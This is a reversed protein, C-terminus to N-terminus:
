CKSIKNYLNVYNNIMNDMSYESKIKEYLPCYLELLFSYNKTAYLIKGELEKLNGSEYILESYEASFIDKYGTYDSSIVLCDNFVAEIIVLPLGEEKSRSTFVFIGAKSLMEKYDSVPDLFKVKSGLEKNLKLLSNIERGDGSVYFDYLNSINQKISNAAVIYLDLGKDKEYRSAALVSINDSLPKNTKKTISELGHKVIFINAAPINQGILINKVRESLVFYYQSKFHNLRGTRSLIGHNTQVTKISSIIKSTYFSVNAAYHNHSHVINISYKRIFRRLFFVSKIFSLISRKSHLINENVVIECRYEEALDPNEVRGCLITFKFDEKRENFGNVLSKIHNSTGCVYKLEDTIILINIL